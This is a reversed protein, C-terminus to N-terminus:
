ASGGPPKPPTPTACTTPRALSGSKVDRLGEAVLAYCAVRAGWDADLPIFPGPTLRAVAGHSASRAAGRLPPM